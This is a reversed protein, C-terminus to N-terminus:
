FISRRSENKHPPIDKQEMLFMHCKHVMEMQSNGALRKVESWTKSFTEKGAEL